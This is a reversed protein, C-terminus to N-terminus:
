SHVTHEQGGLGRVGERGPGEPNGDGPYRSVNGQGLARDEVVGAFVNDDLAGVSAGAQTLWWRSEGEWATLTPPTHLVPFDGSAERREM